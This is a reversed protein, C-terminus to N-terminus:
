ARTAPASLRASTRPPMSRLPCGSFAADIAAGAGEVRFDALTAGVVLSSIRVALTKAARLEEVFRAVDKDEEIVVTQYNMLIRANADQAPRDDFRYALRSNRDSGVPHTFHLRVIPANDFCMLVLSAIQLAAPAHQAQRANRSRTLLTAGFQPKDSLTDTRKEIKWEGAATAATTLLSSAGTCGALVTAIFGLVFVRVARGWFRPWDAGGPRGICGVRAALAVFAM